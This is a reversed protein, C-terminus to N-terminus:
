DNDIFAEVVPEPQVKRPRGRGRKVPVDSDVTDNVVTEATSFKEMAKQMNESVEGIMAKMVRLVAPDVNALQHAKAIDALEKALEDPNLQERLYHLRRQWSAKRQRQLDRIDPRESAAISADCFAIEEEAEEIADANNAKITEVVKTMAAETLVQGLYEFGKRSQRARYYEANAGYKAALRRDDLDPVGGNPYLILADRLTAGEPRLYYAWAGTVLDPM